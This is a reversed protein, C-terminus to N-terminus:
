IAETSIIEFDQEIVTKYFTYCVSAITLILLITFLIKTKKDM